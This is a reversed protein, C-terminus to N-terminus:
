FTPTPWFFCPPQFSSFFQQGIQGFQSVPNFIGFHAPYPSCGAPVSQKAAYTHQHPRFVPSNQVTHPPSPPLMYLQQQQQPYTHSPYRPTPLDLQPVDATTDVYIAADMPSEDLVLGEVAQSPPTYPPTLPTTVPSGLIFQPCERILRQLETLTARRRPDTEFIRKLIFNLEDTIPLISQLFNPDRIFARFTSDDM